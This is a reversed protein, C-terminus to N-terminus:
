LGSRVSIAGRQALARAVLGDSERFPCALIAALAAGDTSGSPGEFVLERARATWRHPLLPSAPPTVLPLVLEFGLAAAASSAVITANTVDAVGARVTAALASRRLRQLQLLATAAATATDSSSRARRDAAASLASVSVSRGSIAYIRGFREAGALATRQWARVCPGCTKHWADMAAVADRLSVGWAAALRAAVLAESSALPDANPAGIGSPLRLHDGSDSSSYEGLLIAATLQAAAPASTAGVGTGWVRQAIASAWLPVGAADSGPIALDALVADRAAHAAVALELPLSFAAVTLVRGEAAAIARVGGELAARVRAAAVSVASDTAREPFHWLPLAPAFATAWVAGTGAGVALSAHLTAHRPTASSAKAEAVARALPTACRQAAAAAAPSLAVYRQGIAAGNNEDGDDLWPMLRGAAAALGQTSSHSASGAADKAAVLAAADEAAALAAVAAHGADACASAVAADLPVGKLEADFLAARLPQRLAYYADLQTLPRPPVVGASTPPSFLADAHWSSADLTRSLHRWVWWVLEADRSCYALFQDRLAPDEMPALAAAPVHGDGLPPPCELGGLAAFGVDLLPVIPPAGASTPQMDSYVGKPSLDLPPLLLAGGGGGGAGRSREAEAAVLMRRSLAPLSHSAHPWALAAMDLVDYSRSLLGRALQQPPAAAGSMASLLAHAHFPSAHFVKVATSDMVLPGVAACVADSGEIFVRSAGGGFDAGGSSAPGAYVSAAIVRTSHSPLGDGPAWGSVEIDIAVPARARSLARAVAHAGSLTRVLTLPTTM